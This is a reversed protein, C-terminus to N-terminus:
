VLQRILQQFEAIFLCLYIYKQQASSFALLELVVFFVCGEKRQLAAAVIGALGGLIGPMGHLNHVGCTDQIGLKSALIPQSFGFFSYPNM